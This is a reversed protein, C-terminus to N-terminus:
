KNFSCVIFIICDGHKLIIGGLLKRVCTLPGLEELLHHLPDNPSPAIEDEYQMILQHTEWIEQSKYYSSLTKFIEVM